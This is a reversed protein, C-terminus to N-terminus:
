RRDKMEIHNTRLERTLYPKLSSININDIYSEKNEM